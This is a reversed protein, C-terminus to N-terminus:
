GLPKQEMACPRHPYCFLIEHSEGKLLPIGNEEQSPCKVVWVQRVAKGFDSM